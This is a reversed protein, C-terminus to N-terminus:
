DIPRIDVVLQEDRRRSASRQQLSKSTENTDNTSKEWGRVQTYELLAGALKYSIRRTCLSITCSNWVGERGDACRLRDACGGVGDRRMLNEGDEWKAAEVM